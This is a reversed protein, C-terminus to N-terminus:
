SCDKIMSKNSLSFWNVQTFLTAMVLLTTLSTMIRVEFIDTKFFLTSYCIVLMILTPLYINIYAYGHLRRMPIFVQITSYDRDPVKKLDLSGIEYEMLVPNGEYRSGSNVLDFRLIDLTGSSIRLEMYCVQVDFPYNVLDFDCSFSEHYKRHTVIPNRSGSFFEM